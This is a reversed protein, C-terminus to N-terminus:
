VKARLYKDVSRAADLANAAARVVLSPGNISDGCAFVGDASSMFDAGVKLMGRESLELGLEDVLGERKVGTFGM